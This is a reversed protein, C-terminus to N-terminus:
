DHEVDCETELREFKRDIPEMVNGDSQHHFVGTVDTEGMIPAINVVPGDHFGRGACVELVAAGSLRRGRPNGSGLVRTLRM